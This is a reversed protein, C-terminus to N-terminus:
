AKMIKEAKTFISFDDEQHDPKRDTLKWSNLFDDKLHDPEHDMLKWTGDAQQVMGKNKEVQWSTPILYEDKLADVLKNVLAIDRDVVLKFGGKSGQTGAVGYLYAELNHWSKLTGPKKLYESQLTRLPSSLQFPRNSGRSISRLHCIM